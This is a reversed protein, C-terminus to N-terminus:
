AASSPRSPSASADRSPAPTRLNSEILERVRHVIVPTPHRVGLAPYSVRRLCELVEPSVVGAFDSALYARLADREDVHSEAPDAGERYLLWAPSVGLIEGYRTAVKVPIVHTAEHRWVTHISLGAEQALAPQTLHARLRAHRLRGGATTLDDAMTMIHGM